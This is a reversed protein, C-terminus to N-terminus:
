ARQTGRTVLRSVAKDCRDRQRAPEAPNPQVSHGWGPQTRHQVSIPLASLPMRVRWIEGSICKEEKAQSSLDERLSLIQRQLEPPDTSTDRQLPQLSLNSSGPPSLLHHKEQSCCPLNWCPKLGKKLISPSSGAWTLPLLLPAPCTVGPQPQLPMQLGEPPQMDTNVGSCGGDQQLPHGWFVLDTGACSYAGDRQLCPATPELNQHWHVLPM